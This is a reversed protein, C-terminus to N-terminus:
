VTVDTEMEVEVPIDSDYIELDITEIDIMEADIM